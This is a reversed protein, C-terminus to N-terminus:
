HQDLRKASRDRERVRDACWALVEDEVWGFARESLQVRSPFRDEKELRWRQSRSLGTVNRCEPERLFRNVAVESVPM